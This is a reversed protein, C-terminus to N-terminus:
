KGLVIWLIFRSGVYALLLLAFGLLTLKIAKRGRWGYRHRGILLWGYIFWSAISFVTKHNFVAAKGFIQESFLMGSILTVTLLAFGWHLVNFLM